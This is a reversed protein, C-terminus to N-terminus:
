VTLYLAVEPDQYYSPSAPGYTPSTSSYQFNDPLDDSPDLESTSTGSSDTDSLYSETNSHYSPSPSHQSQSPSWCHICNHSYEPNPNPDAVPDQIIPNPLVPSRTDNPPSPREQVRIVPLEHIHPEDLYLTRVVELIKYFGLAMRRQLLAFSRPRWATQKLTRPDIRPLLPVQHRLLDTATPLLQGQPLKLTHDPQMMFDDYKPGLIRQQDNLEFPSQESFVRPNLTILLDLPYTKKQNKQFPRIRVETRPQKQITTKRKLLFTKLTEIASKHFDETTQSIKM